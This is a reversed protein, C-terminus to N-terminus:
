RSLRYWMLPLLADFGVGLSISYLNTIIVYIIQSFFNMIVYALRLRGRMGRMPNKSSGRYSTTGIKYRELRKWNEM